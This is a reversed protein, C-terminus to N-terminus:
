LVHLSVDRLVPVASRDELLLPLSETARRREIVRGGHFQARASDSLFVADVRGPRLWWTRTAGDSEQMEVGVYSVRAISDFACYLEPPWRIHGLIAGAMMADARTAALDAATFSTSPRGGSGAYFDDLAAESLFLADVHQPNVYYTREEGGGEDVVVIVRQIVGEPSGPQGPPCAALFAAAILVLISKPRPSYLRHNVGQM